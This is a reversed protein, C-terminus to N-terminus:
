MRRPPGVVTDHGVANNSADHLYHTWEDTEKPRGKVTKAWKGGAKVYAVGDPALVRLVEARPIKGLDEAVLLNVLNDIYPLRDKAWQDVSVNPYGKRSRIHERAKAVNKADADLGHVLYSDNARLAATLKGDGCGLHVILGGKVGTANLIEVALADEASGAATAGSLPGAVMAVAAIWAIFGGSFVARNARESM